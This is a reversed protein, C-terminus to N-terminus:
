AYCPVSLWRNWPSQDRIHMVKSKLSCNNLSVTFNKNIPFIFSTNDTKCVVGDSLRFVGRLSLFWYNMSYAWQFYKGLSPHTKGNIFSVELIMEWIFYKEWLNLEKLFYILPCLWWYWIEIKNCNCLSKFSFLSSKM